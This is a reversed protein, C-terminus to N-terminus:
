WAVRRSKSAVRSVAAVAGADGGFVPRHPAARACFPMLASLRSGSFQDAVSFTVQFSGIGVTDPEVGITEPLM